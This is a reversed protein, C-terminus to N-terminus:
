DGAPALVRRIERLVKGTESERYVHHMVDKLTVADFHGDPFGLSEGEGITIRARPFLESGKEICGADNDVGAADFGRATLYAVLSGFGCGVDLVRTGRIQAAILENHQGDVHGWPGHLRRHPEKIKM